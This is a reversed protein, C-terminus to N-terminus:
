NMLRGTYVKIIHTHTNCLKMKRPKNDHLLIQHWSPHVLLGSTFCSSKQWPPDSLPSAPERLQTLSDPPFHFYRRLSTLLQMEGFGQQNNYPPEGFTQKRMWLGPLVSFYVGIQQAVKVNRCWFDGKPLHNKRFASFGAAPEGKVYVPEKVRWVNESQSKTELTQCFM